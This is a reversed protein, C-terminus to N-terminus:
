PEFEGFPAGTDNSSQVSRPGSRYLVEDGETDYKVEPDAAKGGLPHPSGPATCAQLISPLAMVPRNDAPTPTRIPSSLIPSLSRLHPEVQGQEKVLPPSSIHAKGVL